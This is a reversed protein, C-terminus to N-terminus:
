FVPVNKERVKKLYGNQFITSVIFLLKEKKLIVFLIGEFHVL